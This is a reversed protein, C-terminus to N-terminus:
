LIFGLKFQYSESKITINSDNYLNGFNSDYTLETLIKIKYITIESGAGVVLGPLFKNYIDYYSDMNAIEFDLRPGFLLYPSIAGNLIKLKALLSINLYDFKTKYNYTVDKGSSLDYSTWETRFGKQIYNGEFVLNFPSYDLFESYLGICFGILNKTPGSSLIPDIASDPIHNRTYQDSTVIGIKVGYNKIFQANSNIMFVVSLVSFM